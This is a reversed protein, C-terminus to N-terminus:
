IKDEDFVSIQGPLVDEPKKRQWKHRYNWCYDVFDIWRYQLQNFVDIKAQNSCRQRGIHYEAFGRWDFSEDDTVDAGTETDWIWPKLIVRQDNTIEILLEYECRSWYAWRMESMLATAFEEKTKCYKKMKKIDAERYKLVDYDIVTGYNIDFLKVKWSMPKFEKKM